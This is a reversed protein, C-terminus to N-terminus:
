LNKLKFALVYFEVGLVYFRVFISIRIIAIVSFICQKM